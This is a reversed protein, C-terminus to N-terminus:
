GFARFRFAAFFRHTVGVSLSGPLDECENPQFVPTLSLPILAQHTEDLIILAQEHQPPRVVNVHAVNLFQFVFHFM